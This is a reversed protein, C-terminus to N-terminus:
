PAAPKKSFFKVLTVSSIGNRADFLVRDVRRMVEPGRVGPAEPAPSNSGSIQPPRAPHELRVEIRDDFDDILIRCPPDKECLGAMCGRAAVESAAGLNVREADSMGDRAAVFEVAARIGSLFRADNTFQLETHSREASM